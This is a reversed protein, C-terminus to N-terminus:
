VGSGRRTSFFCLQNHSVLVRIKRREVMGDFDGQWKEDVQWQEIFENTDNSSIAALPILMLLSFLLCSLWRDCTRQIARTGRKPTDSLEAIRNTAPM